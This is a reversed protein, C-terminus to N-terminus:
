SRRGIGAPEANYGRFSLAFFLTPTGVSSNRLSGPVPRQRRLRPADGRGLLRWFVWRVKPGAEEVLVQICVGPSMLSSPRVKRERQAGEVGRDGAKRSSASRCNYPRRRRTFVSGRRVLRRCRSHPGSRAQHGFLEEQARSTSKWYGRVVYPHLLSGPSSGPGGNNRTPMAGEPGSACASGWFLRGGSHVTPM